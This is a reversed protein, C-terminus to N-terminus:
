ASSPMRSPVEHSSNLRTSKRDKILLLNNYKKNNINEYLRNTKKDLTIQSSNVDSGIDSDKGTMEDLYGNGMYDNEEPKLFNIQAISITDNNIGTSTKALRTRPQVKCELNAYMVLDEQHINRERIINQEDVVKNPDVIIINQKDLDIYINETKGVM